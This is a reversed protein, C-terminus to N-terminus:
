SATVAVHDQTKASRQYALLLGIYWFPMIYLATRTDAELSLLCLVFLLFVLSLVATFKGGPLKFTSRQHAEPNTRRYALYSLLILSWTVVVMVASITSVLTFVGMVDPIVFLLTLAITMCLGSFM